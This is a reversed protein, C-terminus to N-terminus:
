HYFINRIGNLMSLILIIWIFVLGQYQIKSNENMKTLYWIMSAFVSLMGLLLTGVVTPGWISGNITGYTATIISDLIFSIIFLTSWYLGM